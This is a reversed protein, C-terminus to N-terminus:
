NGSKHMSELAVFIWKKTFSQLGLIHKTGMYWTDWWDAFGSLLGGDKISKIKNKNNTIMSM